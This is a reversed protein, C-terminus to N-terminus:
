KVKTEKPPEFKSILYNTDFGQGIKDIKIFQNALTEKDDYNSLAEILRTAIINFDKEKMNDAYDLVEFHVQEVEKMVGSQKDKINVTSLIGFNNPLFKLILTNSNKFTAIAKGEKIQKWNKVM